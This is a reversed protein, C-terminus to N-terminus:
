TNSTNHRVPRGIKRITPTNTKTIFPCVDFASDRASCNKLVSGCRFTSSTCVSTGVTPQSRISMPSGDGAGCKGLSTRIVTHAVLAGICVISHYIHKPFKDGIAERIEADTKGVLDNAAAFGRLDPRQSLKKRMRTENRLDCHESNNTNSGCLQTTVPAGDQALSINQTKKNPVAIKSYGHQQM